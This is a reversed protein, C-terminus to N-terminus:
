QRRDWLPWPLPQWSAIGRSATVSDWELLSSPPIERLPSDSKIAEVQLVNGVLERRVGAPDRRDAAVGLTGGGLRALGGLHTQVVGDREVLPCVDRRWSEVAGLTCVAEGEGPGLPVPRDELVDVQGDLLDLDGATVRCTAGGILDSDADAERRLARDVVAM